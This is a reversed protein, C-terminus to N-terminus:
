LIESDSTIMSDDVSVALSVLRYAGIGIRERCLACGLIDGICRQSM